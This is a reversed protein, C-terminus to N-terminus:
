LNAVNEVQNTIKSKPKWDRVDIKGTVAEAILATKYEKILEIEREIRSITFHIKASEINIFILIDKQENISPLPIPIRSLISGNLNDMTAGVSELKLWDKIFPSQLYVSLFEGNVKNHIISVRISGTGCLWGEEKETVIACRGMEGRRGFIINGKKLLHRNLDNAKESTICCKLDPIVKGEYINAPNIVPIGNEIYEAAHLQSGFPGTQIFETIHRLKKLGWHAPIKGLWEIGSDKMPAKPNLGRTVARNIIAQKQEKLLEILRTKKQVATDILACKYDLFKAIQTQESLPPLPQFSERFAGYDINQGERIGTVYTALDDVFNKSKFFYRYFGGSVVKSPKMITYAPSIIGQYHAYEIGGQFSRLSIVFDGIKVLKLLHFDKQATVTRNEYLEKPVVGKTQTAALLPENEFGKEVREKFLFKIKVDEWGEPLQPLWLIPSSKYKPYPKQM